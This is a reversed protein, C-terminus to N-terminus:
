TRSLLGGPTRTVRLSGNPRGVTTPSRGFSASPTRGTPRRSMSLSPAAAVPDVVGVTTSDHEDTTPEDPQQALEWALEAVTRNVLKTKGQKMTEIGRAECLAVLAEKPQHVNFKVAIEPDYCSKMVREYVDKDLVNRADTASLKMVAWPHEFGVDQLEEWLRTMDAVREELQEFVPRLPGLGATYGYEAVHDKLRERREENLARTLLFQRMISAPDSTEIETRIPCATERFVCSSCHDGPTAIFDQTAEIYQAKAVLLDQTETVDDRSFTLSRILPKGYAVYRMFIFDVRVIEAPYLARWAAWAYERGQQYFRSAPDAIATKSPAFIDSKYDQIVLTKDEPFVLVHDLKSRWFILGKDVAPHTMREYEIAASWEVLKLNEDFAIGGERAISHEVDIEYVKLFARVVLTLEDYFALSMGTRRVADDIFQGIVSIDSRRGASICHNCYLEMVLHAARGFRFNTQEKGRAAGTQTLYFSAPCVNFRENGSHSHLFRNM